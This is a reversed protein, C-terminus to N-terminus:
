SLYSANNRFFCSKTPFFVFTKTLYALLGSVINFSLFISVFGPGFLSHLLQYDNLIRHIM